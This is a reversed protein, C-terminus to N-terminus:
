RIRLTAVPRLRALGERSSCRRMGADLRHIHRCGARTRGLGRAVQVAGSITWLSTHREHRAWYGSATNTGTRRRSASRRAARAAARSPWEMSHDARRRRTVQNDSVRTRMTYKLSLYRADTPKRRRSRRGYSAPELPPRVFGAIAISRPTRRSLRHGTTAPSRCYRMRKAACLLVRQCPRGRGLAV